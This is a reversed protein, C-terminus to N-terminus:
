GVWGWMIFQGALFLWAAVCPYLILRNIRPSAGLEGLVIFAPFLALAFRGQSSIPQTLRVQALNFLM